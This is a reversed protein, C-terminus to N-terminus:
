NSGWCTQSTDTATSDQATQQGTSELIFQVCQRDSTQPAAIPLAKLQYSPAANVPSPITLTISYYGNPSNTVGAVLPCPTNAANVYTFNQSYCRQLTQAALQLTRTADTRNGTRVYSQYSPIAIAALVAVISVTILLEILTFGGAKRPIFNVRAEEIAPM